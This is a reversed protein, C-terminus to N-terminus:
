IFCTLFLFISVIHYQKCISNLFVFFVESVFFLTTIILPLILSPFHAFTTLLYLSETKLNILEPSTIYVTDVITLLVTSYIQFNNFSYVKFTRM